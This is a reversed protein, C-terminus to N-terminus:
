RAAWLFSLVTLSETPSLGAGLLVTATLQDVLDVLTTAVIPPVAPDAARVMVAATARIGSPTLQTPAHFAESVAV